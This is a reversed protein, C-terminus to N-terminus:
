KGGKFDIVKFEGDTIKTLSLGCVPIVLNGGVNIINNMSRLWNLNGKFENSNVGLDGWLANALRNTSYVNGVILTNKKM